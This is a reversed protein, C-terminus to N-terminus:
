ASRRAVCCPCLARLRAFGYIGQSHGDSWYVRIGYQGALEIQLPRVAQIGAPVMRFQGHPRPTSQQACAACPCALRLDGAPYVSEHGDAWRIRVNHAGARGIEVPVSSMSEPM